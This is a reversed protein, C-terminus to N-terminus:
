RSKAGSAGVEIRRRNYNLKPLINELLNTERKYIVGIEPIKSLPRALVVLSSDFSSDSRWKFEKHLIPKLPKSLDYLSTRKHLHTSINFLSDVVEKRAREWINLNHPDNYTALVLGSPTLANQAENFFNKIVEPTMFSLTFDLFMLDVSQPKFPLEQLRAQIKNPFDESYLPAFPRRNMDMYVQRSKPFLELCLEKFESAAKKGHFGGLVINKPTNPDLLNTDIEALSNLAEKYVSSHEGFSIISGYEYYERWGM